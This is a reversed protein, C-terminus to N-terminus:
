GQDEPTEPVNLLFALSRAMDAAMGLWDASRSCSLAQACAAEFRGAAWRILCPANYWLQGETGPM